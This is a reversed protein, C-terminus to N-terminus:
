PRDESSHQLPKVEAEEHQMASNSPNGRVIMNVSILALMVLAIQRFRKADLKRSAIVGLWTGVCSIPAVLVSWVVIQTTLLQAVILGVLKYLGLIIMFGVLFGKMKAPSWPQRVVFAAVPPGGISVAGSRFGSVAGAAASWYTTARTPVPPPEDRKRLGDITILLIITGTGRVLWDGPVVNFVVLGLPLALGAGCLAGGLDAWVVNRRYHWFALMMPAISSLSVILNALHIDLFFSMFALATVAFGFGMSSQVFGAAFVAVAVLSLWGLQDLM